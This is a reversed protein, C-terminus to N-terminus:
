CFSYLPILSQPFLSRPNALLRADLVLREADMGQSGDEKKAM